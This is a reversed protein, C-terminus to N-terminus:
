CKKWLDEIPEEETGTIFNDYGDILFRAESIIPIVDFKFTLTENNLAEGKATLLQISVTATEARTKVTAVTLRKPDFVSIVTENSSVVNFTYENESLERPEDEGSFQGFIHFKYLSNSGIAMYGEISEEQNEDLFFIREPYKKLKVICMDTFDNLSIQVIIDEFAYNNITVAGAELKFRDVNNYNIGSKIVQFEPIYGSWSSPNVKYKLQTPNNYDIWFVAYGTEEDYYDSDFFVGRVENSPTAGCGTLVLGLPILLAM